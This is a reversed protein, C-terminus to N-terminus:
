GADSGCNGGDLKTAKMQDQVSPRRPLIATMAASVPLMATKSARSNAMSPRMTSQSPM